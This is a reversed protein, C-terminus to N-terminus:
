QIQTDIKQLIVDIVEELSTEAKNLFTAGKKLAEDKLGGDGSLTTLVVIPTATDTDRIEALIELGNKGPLMMDLVICQPRAGQIMELAQLGDGCEIVEIDNNRLRDSLFVRLPVDDEVIVVRKKKKFFQM